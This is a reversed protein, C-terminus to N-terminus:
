WKLVAKPNPSEVIAQSSRICNAHISQILVEADGMDDEITEAHRSLHIIEEMAQYARLNIKPMQQYRLATERARRMTAKWGDFSVGENDSFQQLVDASSGKISQYLALAEVLFANETEAERVEEADKEARRSRHDRYAVALAACVALWTGTGSVWDALSGCELGLACGM